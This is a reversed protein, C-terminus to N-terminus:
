DNQTATGEINVTAVTIGAKYYSIAEGTGFFLDTYAPNIIMFGVDDDDTFYVPKNVLGNGYQDLVLAIIEAVNLGNAPLIVPYASVTISDVFPRVTSVQYNYKSGWDNDVGYYTAEDQLRYVTKNSISLDYIPIVTIEDSRLNDIIMSEYLSITDINLFRINTTKVYLLADVDSSFVGEIRDFTCATVNDYESDSYRNLLVGTRADLRCLSGGGTSDFLWLHIYFNVEDDEAYGYQTGSVLTINTGSVSSVEVDESQNLSNPGLTLTIGGSIVTDYYNDTQITTDGGSITTSLSTHYHEVTFASSDYTGTITTKLNCTMGEIQWRKIAIDVGTDQLTWFNVGDYELSEVANGIVTDLPYNYSITGDDLKQVLVDYEEDFTYFYGGVFTMNAKGFNINEYVM